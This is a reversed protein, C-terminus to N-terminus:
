ADVTIIQTPSIFHKGTASAVVWITYDDATAFADATLMQGFIWQGSTFTLGESSSYVTSNGIFCTSASLNLNFGGTSSASCHITIDRGAQGQFESLDIGTNLRVTFGYSNKRPNSM